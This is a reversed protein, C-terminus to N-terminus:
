LNQLVHILIHVIMTHPLQRCLDRAAERYAVLHRLRVVGPLLSPGRLDHVTLSQAKTFPTSSEGTSYSHAMQLNYLAAGGTIYCFERTLAM